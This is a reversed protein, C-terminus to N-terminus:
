KIEFRSHFANEAEQENPYRDMRNIYFPYWKAFPIFINTNNDAEPHKNVISTWLKNQNMMYVAREKDRLDDAKSGLEKDEIDELLIGYKTIRKYDTESIRKFAFAIDADIRDTIEKLNM